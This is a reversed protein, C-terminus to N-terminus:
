DKSCSPAQATKQVLFGRIYTTIIQQQKALEPLLARMYAVTLNAPRHNMLFSIDTLKIGAGQAFTAYSHRLAHPSFDKLFAHRKEAPEELHGSESDGAPFVWPSEGFVANTVKCARRKTLLDVLFDSLPIYFAKAKGGKPTPIFVSPVGNVAGTLDVHEWQMECTAASRNGTFLAFLNFDRRVPNPLKMVAAYWAPLQDLTLASEKAHEPNMDFPQFEPLKLHAKKVRAYNYVARFARVMGNAAYPAPKRNKWGRIKKAGTDWGHKTIKDHLEEIMFQNAGLWTLPKDMLHKLHTDFIKKYETITKDSREKKREYLHLQVADALTFGDTEADVIAQLKRDKKEDNPNIGNKMQVIAAMALKRAEKVPLTDVRGLNVMVSTGAIDHQVYYSRSTRHCLVFFGKVETDYYIAPLKEEPGFAHARQERRAAGADDAGQFPFTKVNADTLKLRAKRRNPIVPAPMAVVNNATQPM